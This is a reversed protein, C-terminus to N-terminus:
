QITLGERCAKSECFTFFGRISKAQTASHRNRCILVVYEGEDNEYLIGFTLFRMKPINSTIANNLEDVTKPPAMFFVRRTDGIEVQVQMESEMTAECTFRGESSTFSSFMCLVHVFCSRKAGFINDIEHGSQWRKM